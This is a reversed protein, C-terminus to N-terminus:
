LMEGPKGGQNNRGNQYVVMMSFFEDSGLLKIMMDKFKEIIHKFSGM